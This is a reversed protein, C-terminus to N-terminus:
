PASVPAPRVVSVSCTAHRVVSESVSGLLLRELGHKGHSGLVILDPHWAAACDLIERRADGARIETTVPFHAAELRRKADNLVTDIRGRLAEHAALVSTAAESGQAFALENPMGKPWEDVHLVRVEAHEPRFQSVVSDLAMGSCPSDDIALLIKM